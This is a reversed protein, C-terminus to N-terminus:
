DGWCYWCSQKLGLMFADWGGATKIAMATRCHLVFCMVWHLKDLAISSAVPHQWQTIVWETDRWCTGPCCCVFCCRFRVGVKSAMKIAMAIRRYMVVRMEWHLLDLAESSAVPHWWRALVLGLLLWQVHSHRTQTSKENDVQQFLADSSALVGNLLLPTVYQHSWVSKVLTVSYKIPPPPPKFLM